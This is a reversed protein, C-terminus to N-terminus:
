CQLSSSLEPLGVTSGNRDVLSIGYVIGSSSIGYVIGSSLM